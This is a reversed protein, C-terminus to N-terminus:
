EEEILRRQRIQNQQQTLVYRSLYEHMNRTHGFFRTGVCHRGRYSEPVLRVVEARITLPPHESPKDSFFLKLTIKDHLEYKRKVVLSIGSVSLDKSGATELVATEPAATEPPDVGDGGVRPQPQPQPQPQSESLDDDDHRFVQVKLNVPLRYAGRRQYLQPRTAQLLWMYRIGERKEFGVLRMYVSFKGSERSFLVHLVDGTNLRVPMGGYTPMGALFFGNGTLDEIMTKCIQGQERIIEIKDGIVIVDDYRM